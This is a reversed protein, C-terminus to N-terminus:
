SRGQVIPNVYELFIKINSNWNLRKQYEV